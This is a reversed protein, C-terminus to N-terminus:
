LPPQVLTSFGPPYIAENDPVLVADVHEAKLQRCDEDLTRPYRDLDENPGFQTPNVFITAVTVDCMETSRRALSLHGEHLAGMTPVFGIQKGESRWRDLCARADPVTRAVIM